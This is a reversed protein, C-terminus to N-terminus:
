AAETDARKTQPATASAKPAVRQCEALLTPFDLDSNAMLADSRAALCAQESAYHAAPTAVTQCADAGDGCGMIAIVFYAPGM